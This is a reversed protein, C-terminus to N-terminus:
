DLKFKIPFLAEQRVTRGEFIAPKWSGSMLKAVRVAEEDCADSVGRKVHINSFKGDKEVVFGIYITGEEKNERAEKPYRINDALFMFMEKQGKKFQAMEDAISFVRETGDYDAFSYVPPILTLGYSNDKSDLEPAKIGFPMNFIWEYKLKTQKNGGDIKDLKDTTMNLWLDFTDKAIVVSYISYATGALKKQNKLFCHEFPADFVSSASKCTSSWKPFDTGSIPKDSWKQDSPSKRNQKLYYIKDKIGISVFTAYDGWNASYILHTNSLSDEEYQLQYKKADYAYKLRWNSKSSFANDIRKKLDSGELKAQAQLTPLFFLGTFFLSFLNKKFM